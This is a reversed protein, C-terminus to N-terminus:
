LEVDSLIVVLMNERIRAMDYDRGAFILERERVKPFEDWRLKNLEEELKRALFVPNTFKDRLNYENKIWIPIKEYSYDINEDIILPLFKMKKGSDIISKYKAIEKLVWDKGMSSESILLCFIGSNEISINIEDETREGSEFVYEDVTIGNNGLIEVVARVLEKDASSHSIFINIYAM